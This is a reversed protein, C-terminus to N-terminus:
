DAAGMRVRAAIGLNVTDLKFNGEGNTGDTADIGYNDDGGGNGRGCSAATTGGTHM